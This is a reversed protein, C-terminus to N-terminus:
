REQKPRTQMAQPTAPYPLLRFGNRWHWLMSIENGVLFTSALDCYGLDLLANVSQALLASGVGQRSTWPSVFVWTLHPRGFRRAVADVPPPEDWKGHWWEGENRRPILTILIAGAVHEQSCAVFCAPEIVPGDGGTRTQELCELACQDRDADILSAFPPMTAFSASFVPLLPEWDHQALPRITIGEEALSDDSIPRRSLSLVANLTKPRPTLRAEGDIYEYKYVPNRPLAHFQELTIPLRILRYWDDLM